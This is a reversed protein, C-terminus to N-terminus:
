WEGSTLASHHANQLAPAITTDHLACGQDVSCVSPRQRSGTTRAAGSDESQAVVAERRKVM